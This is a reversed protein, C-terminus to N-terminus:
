LKLDIWNKFEGKKFKESHETFYVWRGNCNREDTNAVIGGFLNKGKKNESQIYNRLGDSKPEFDSLFTGHPDFLGIRGDKFKVIFDVYFPKQEGNKYPVAFFTADRDGNKFWWDINEFKELFEIFAAETKWEGVKYFPQTISKKVDEKTADEGFTLSEPINWNEVPLLEREKKEAEAQYKIKARNLVNKFHIENKNSLVMQVIEEWKDAIKEWDKEFFKYISEEVRKVSRDEPYFPTLNNRVWFDFIKQLDFGSMKIPKDGVIKAGILVDIDEAKYDSIIKLDIKRAKVDVFKKM